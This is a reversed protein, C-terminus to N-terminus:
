SDVYRFLKQLFCVNNEHTSSKYARPINVILKKNPFFEEM